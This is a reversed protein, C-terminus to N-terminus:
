LTVRRVKYLTEDWISTGFSQIKLPLSIQKLETERQQFIQERQDEPVLDMKHILCFIKADKSNQMIAELCSRYYHLDKKLDPYQCRFNGAKLTSCTSLCKLM